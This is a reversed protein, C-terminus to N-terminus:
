LLRRLGTEATRMLAPTPASFKQRPVWKPVRRWFERRLADREAVDETWPPATGQDPM